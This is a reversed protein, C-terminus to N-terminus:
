LNEQATIIGYLTNVTFSLSMSRNKNDVSLDFATLQTVGITGMITAKFLSQLKTLQPNKVLVDQYFRVGLTTDLYWEGIFFQLRIKLRQRIQEIGDILVLDFNEVALDNEIVSSNNPDTVVNIKLDGLGQKSLVSKATTKITNVLLPPSPEPTPGSFYKLAGMDPSTTSISVSNFDIIPISSEIDHGIGTAICPSGIRLTFDSNLLPDIGDLNNSTLSTPNGDFESVGWGYLDNHQISVNTDDSIELTHIPSHSQNVVINNFVKVEGGFIDQISIGDYGEKITNNSVIVRSTSCVAYIWIIGNILYYGSRSMKFINNTIFLPQVETEAYENFFSDSYQLSTDEFYCRSIESFDTLSTCSVSFTALDVSAACQLHIDYMKFFGDSYFSLKYFSQIKWIPKHTNYTYSRLTINAILASDVTIPNSSDDIVGNDIFDVIDFDALLGSILLSYFTHFGTAPTLGDETISGANLYYTSM